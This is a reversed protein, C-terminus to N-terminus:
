LGARNVAACSMVAVFALVPFLLTISISFVEEDEKHVGIAACMFVLLCLPNSTINLPKLM